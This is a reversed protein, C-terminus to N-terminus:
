VKLLYMQWPFPSNDSDIDYGVSRVFNKFSSKSWHNYHGPTNGLESWYKGRAMNLVRWIPEHPVSVLSHKSTIRFLEAIGKKPKELHELVECCLTLDFQKDKYNILNEADAKEFSIDIGKTHKRAKKLENEALDCGYLKAKPFIDHVIKLLEGEGCGVECVTRISNKPLSHLLSRFNNIFGSVLYKSIPNTANYKDEHNGEVFSNEKM